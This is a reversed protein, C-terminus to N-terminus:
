NTRKQNCIVENKTRNIEPKHSKISGKQDKHKASEISGSTAKKREATTVQHQAISKQTNFEQYGDLNWGKNVVYDMGRDMQEEIVTWAIEDMLHNMQQDM